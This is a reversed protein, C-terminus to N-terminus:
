RPHRSAPPNCYPVREKTIASSDFTAIPVIVTTPEAPTDGEDCLGEFWSRTDDALPNGIALM